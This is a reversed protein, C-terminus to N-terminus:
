GSTHDHIIRWVGDARRMVLSFLGSSVEGSQEVNFQGTVVAVDDTVLRVELKDLSLQGFGDAGQYEDRYRKMLASWGKVVAGGSVYRLSDDKVYISMFGDLDGENWAAVQAMLTATVIDKPGRPATAAKAPSAPAATEVPPATDAQPALPLGAKVVPTAAGAGPASSAMRAPADPAAGVIRGTTRVKPAGPEIATQSAVLQAPGGSAPDLPPQALIKDMMADVDDASSAVASAATPAVAPASAGNQARPTSPPTKVNAAAPQALKPQAPEPAAQALKPAPAAAPAADARLAPAAGDCAYGAAILRQAMARAKDQCFGASSDAHYPVSVNAGGDRTYRVDCMRGVAGPALVEIVRADAGRSCTTRYTEAAQAGSACAAGVSLMLITKKM